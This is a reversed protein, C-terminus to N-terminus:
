STKSPSHSEKVKKIAALADKSDKIADYFKSESDRHWFKVCGNLAKECQDIVALLATVQKKLKESEIVYNALAQVNVDTIM